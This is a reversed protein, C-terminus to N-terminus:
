AAELDGDEEDFRSGVQVELLSLTDRGANELRHPVGFPVFISSQPGAHIVDDGRTIVAEGSLVVFQGTRHHHVRLDLEAGPGMEIRRIRYHHGTAVTKGVRIRWGGDM